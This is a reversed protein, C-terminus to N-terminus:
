RTLTLTCRRKGDARRLEGRKPNPFKGAVPFSYIIGPRAHGLTYKPRVTQGEMRLNNTSGDPNVHGSLHAYGDEGKRLHTFSLNGNNDITGGYSIAFADGGNPAEDCSKTLQWTGAFSEARAEKYSASLALAAATVSIIKIQRNM